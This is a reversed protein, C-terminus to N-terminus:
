VVRREYQNADYQMKLLVDHTGSDRYGAEPPGTCLCVALACRKRLHRIEKGDV